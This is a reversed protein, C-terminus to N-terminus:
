EDAYPVFSAKKVQEPDDLDAVLVYGVRSRRDLILMQRRIVKNMVMFVVISGFIVGITVLVIIIVAMIVLIAM